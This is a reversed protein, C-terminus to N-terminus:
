KELDAELFYVLDVLNLISKESSASLDFRLIILNNTRRPWPHTSPTKKKQFVYWWHHFRKVRWYHNVGTVVAASVWCVRDCVSDSLRRSVVYRGKVGIWVILCVDPLDEFSKELRVNAKDSPFPIATRGRPSWAGCHACVFFELLVSFNRQQVHSQIVTWLAPASHESGQSTRHHARRPVERAVHSQGCQAIAAVPRKNYWLSLIHQSCNTNTPMASLHWVSALM